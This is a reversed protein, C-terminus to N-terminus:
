WRFVIRLLGAVFEFVSQLNENKDSSVLNSELVEFLYLKHINASTKICSPFKYIRKVAIYFASIVFDFIGELIFEMRHLMM